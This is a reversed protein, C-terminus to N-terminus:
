LEAAVPIEQGTIERRAERHLDLIRQAYDYLKQGAGTLLVRGGKRQFPPKGLTKELAQVRQSVAAQSLRLAKAAGTFSSLEAAKSFTELHPLQANDPKEADM